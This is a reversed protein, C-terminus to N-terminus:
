LACCGLFYDDDDHDDDDGNDDSHSGQIKGLRKYDLIYLTSYIGSYSIRYLSQSHVTHDTHLEECPCCNKRKVMM